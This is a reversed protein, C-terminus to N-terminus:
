NQAPRLRLGALLLAVGGLLGVFWGTTAQRAARRCEELWEAPPQSGSTDVVGRVVVSISPGCLRNDVYTELWLLWGLCVVALLLGSLALWRWSSSSSKM